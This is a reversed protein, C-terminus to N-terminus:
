VDVKKGVRKEQEEFEEWTSFFRMYNLLDSVFNCIQDETWRKVLCGKRKVFYIMQLLKMEDNTLSYADQLYTKFMPTKHAFFICTRNPETKFMLAELHKNEDSGPKFAYNEIPEIDEVLGLLIVWGKAIRKKLDDHFDAKSLSVPRIKGGPDRFTVHKIFEEDDNTM